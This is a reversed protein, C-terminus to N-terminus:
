SIIFSDVEYDNQVYGDDALEQAILMDEQDFENMIDAIIDESISGKSEQMIIVSQEDTPMAMEQNSAPTLVTDVRQHRVSPIIVIIALLAVSGALVLKNKTVNMFLIFPSKIGKQLIKRNISQNTVNKMLMNFEARSPIEIGSRSQQLLTEIKKSSENM